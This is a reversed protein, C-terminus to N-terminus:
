LNQKLPISFTFTTANEKGNAVWIKGMHGEIVEKCISLGLGTGGAGSKTKSSQVFKDFIIELEDDPIGVGQNIVSLSIAPIFRKNLEHEEVTLTSKEFHVTIDRGNPTFKIANSLLNTIVQFIKNYDCEVSTVLEIKPLYINLNKDDSLTKLSQVVDDLISQLDHDNFDFEVVNEELKSLDLLGNILTLLRAGSDKIENLNEIQEDNTWEEINMMGLDSFGVIIHVPTRLEHSMNALFESKSANAAIAKKRETEAIKSKNELASQQISLYERQAQTENLLGKNRRNTLVKNIVIALPSLLSNLLTTEKEGLPTFSALEIVAIVTTGYKIPFIIIENPPAEGISSNIAIYNNPINRIKITEGSTICQGILGERKNIIETEITVKSVGYTGTRELTETEETSVYLVGIQASITPILINLLTDSLKKVDNTAQLLSLIKSHQSKIWDQEIIIKSTIFGITLGVFVVFVVGFILYSKTVDTENEVKNIRELILKQEVSIFLALDHRFADIINKGTEASLLEVVKQFEIEGRNYKRRMEIELDGAVGLWLQVNRQISELRAVQIPNDNVQTKLINIEDFILKKGTNFPQLFNEKGTIIFGRQGTEMDIQLKEIYQSKLLVEHTHEVWEASRQSSLFQNFTIVCIFVIVIIPVLIAIWLINKISLNNKKM